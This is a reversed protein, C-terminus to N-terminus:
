LIVERTGGCEPCDAPDDFDRDGTCVPCLVIREPSIRTIPESIRELLSLATDETKM